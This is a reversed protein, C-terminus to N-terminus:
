VLSEEKVPEHTIRSLPSNNMRKFDSEHTKNGLLGTFFEKLSSRSNKPLIIEDCSRWKKSPLKLVPPKLFNSKENENPMVDVKLDKTNSLLPRLSEDINIMGNKNRTGNSDSRGCSRCNRDINGAMCQECDESDISELKPRKKKINSAPLLQLDVASSDMNHLEGCSIASSGFFANSEADQVKLLKNSEGRGIHPSLRRPSRPSDQASLRLFVSVGPSSPPEEFNNAFSSNRRSALSGRRGADSLKPSRTKRNDERHINFLPQPILSEFATNMRKKPERSHGLLWYTRM